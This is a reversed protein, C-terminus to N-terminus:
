VGAYPRAPAHAAEADGHAQRAGPEPAGDAPLTPAVLVPLATVRTLKERLSPAMRHSALRRHDVGVLIVDAGFATAEEAIARALQRNRASRTSGHAEVRQAGRGTTGAGHSAVATAPRAHEVLELVSVDAGQLGSWHAALDLAGRGADSGDIAVLLRRFPPTEDLGSPDQIGATETLTTM